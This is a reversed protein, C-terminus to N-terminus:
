LVTVAYGGVYQDVYSKVVDLITRNDPPLVQLQSSSLNLGGQILFLRFNEFLSINNDQFMIVYELTLASLLNVSCAHLLEGVLM